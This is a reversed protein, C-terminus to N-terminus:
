NIVFGVGKPKIDFKTISKKIRGRRRAPTGVRCEEIM